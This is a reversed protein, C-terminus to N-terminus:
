DGKTYKPCWHSHLNAEKGYTTDGGCECKVHHKVSSARVPTAYDALDNYSFSYEKKDASNVKVCRFVFIITDIDIIKYRHVGIMFEDGIDWIM